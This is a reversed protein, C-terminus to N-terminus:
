CKHRQMIVSASEQVTTTPYWAAAAPETPQNFIPWTQQSWTLQAPRFFQSRHKDIEVFGLDTVKRRVTLRAMHTNPYENQKACASPFIHAFIERLHRQCQSWDFTPSLGSWNFAFIHLRAQTVCFTCKNKNNKQILRKNTQENTRLRRHRQPLHCNRWAYRTLHRNMM